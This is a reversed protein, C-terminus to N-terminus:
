RGTEEDITNQASEVWVLGAIRGAAEARQTHGRHSYLDSTEFTCAATDTHVAIGAPHSSLVAVAGAPLDLGPTGWSTRSAVEACQAVSETFMSEPVEYCRGCISPGLWAHINEAERAVLDHIEAQLVGDLLGRRGAHAVGLVPQGSQRHEGIFVVPICDAVMIALPKAESSSAADATPASLHAGPLVQRHGAPLPNTQDANFVATGHVQNLYTFGDLASPGLLREELRTRATLVEAQSGGVHLGLNGAGVSTFAVKVVSGDVTRHEASSFLFDTM